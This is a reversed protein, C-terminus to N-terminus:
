VAKRLRGNSEQQDLLGQIEPDMQELDSMVADVMQQPWKDGGPVVFGQTDKPKVDPDLANSMEEAVIQQDIQDLMMHRTARYRQLQVYMLSIGSALGFLAFHGVTIPSDWRHEAPEQFVVGFGMVILIVLGPEFFCEVWFMKLNRPWLYAAWPIGWSKSYWRVQKKNRYLVLALHGSWTMVVVANWLGAAKEGILIGSLVAVFQAVLLMGLTVVREGHKHHLILLWPYALANALVYLVGKALAFMKKVEEAQNMGKVMGQYASSMPDPSSQKDGSM